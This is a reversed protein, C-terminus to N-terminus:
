PSSASAGPRQRTGAVVASRVIVEYSTAATMSSTSPTPRTTLTVTFPPADTV